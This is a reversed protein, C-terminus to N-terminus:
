LSSLFDQFKPNSEIAKMQALKQFGEGMAIFGPNTAVAQVLGIIERSDTIEWTTTQSKSEDNHDIFESVIRLTQKDKMDKREAM